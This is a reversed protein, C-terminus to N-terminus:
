SEGDEKSLSDYDTLAHPTVRVHRVSEPVVVDLPPAQKRHRARADLLHAVSAVSIAGKAMAEALAADVERPGYRELLQMLRSVDYGLSTSRTVLAELFAPAEKLTTRLVDRARLAAGRRKEAALADLHARDEIRLGKDYSRAHRAVEETGDLLRVTDASAVLTLPKKLLAPPLSYDNGDYRVYPTKGSIAALVADTSAPVAPLPLLVAREEGLMEHVRKGNPAGPWARQMAVDALWQSLQANLHAVDTFRRAAFFSDRLYRITREVKGKENGRYPACPKPAFHYHGALELLRPHFRIAEGNRELVVSKLNDYLVARPVGGLAEFAGVHGRLFSEMSMDLAFRAYVARSYSLVMVFCCLSRQANGVAVKGFLGWDVQAEEGPLTEVRFFAERRAQPRMARIFRRLHVASGPYGRGKVMEYVRSSRLRPYKELTERIFPLWPTVMSERVARAGVSEGAGRVGIAREVAEHHVGLQEAITGVPWHEAFHLRRIRTVVELPLTM